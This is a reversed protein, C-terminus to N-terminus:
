LCSSISNYTPYEMAKKSEEKDQRWLNRSNKGAVSQKRNRQTNVMTDDELTSILLVLPSTSLLGCERVASSNRRHSGEKVPGEETIGMTLGEKMAQTAEVM